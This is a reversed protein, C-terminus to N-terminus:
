DSFKAIAAAISEPTVESENFGMTTYAIRACAMAFEQRTLKEDRTYDPGVLVRTERSLASSPYWGEPAQGRDKDGAWVFCERLRPMSLQKNLGSHRAWLSFGSLLM